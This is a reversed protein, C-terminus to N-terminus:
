SCGLHRRDGSVLGGTGVIGVCWAAGASFRHAGAGRRKSGRGAVWGLGALGGVCLSVGLIHGVMTWIALMHSGAGAAHGTLAQPIFCALALGAFIAATRVRVPWRAAIAIAA